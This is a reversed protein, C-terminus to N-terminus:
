HGLPSWTTGNTTHWLGVGAQCIWGQTASIFTVAGPAGGTFGARALGAVPTWTRGGDVTRLVGSRDPALWAAAPSVVALNKHGVAYPAVYGASSLVGEGPVPAPPSGFGTSGAALSWTLGGDSSRYLQKLQNGASAQGGCVLWLDNTGSAALEAGLNFQPACPVPRTSWSAGGDATYALVTTSGTDQSATSLVYARTETIRALEVQPPLLSAAAAVAQPVASPALAWSHGADSSVQLQLTCGPGATLCPGVLAWVDTGIASVDYVVPGLPAESWTRGGDVTVWMPRPSPPSSADGVGGNWLYGLAPSVFELESADTIGGKTYAAPLSGNVVAWASGGDTTGVLVPHGRHEALGFGQTANVFVMAYLATTPVPDGATLPDPLQNFQFATERAPAPRTGTGRAGLVGVAAALVAVVGVCAVMATVIRRRRLREIERARARVSRLADAGPALPRPDDLHEFM